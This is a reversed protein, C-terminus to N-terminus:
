SKSITPKDSLALNIGILEAAALLLPPMARARALSGLTRSDM